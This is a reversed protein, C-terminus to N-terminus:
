RGAPSYIWGQQEMCAAFHDAYLASEAPIKELCYAIAKERSPRRSGFPNACGVAGLGLVLLVVLFGGAVRSRFDLCRPLTCSMRCPKGFNTFRAPYCGLRGPSERAFPEAAGGSRTRWQSPDAVVPERIGSSIGHQRAM